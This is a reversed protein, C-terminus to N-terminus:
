DYQATMEKKGIIKYIDKNFSKLFTSSNAISRKLDEFKNQTQNRKKTTDNLKYKSNLSAVRKKKM